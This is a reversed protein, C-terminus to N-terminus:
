QQKSPGFVSFLTGEILREEIRDLLRKSTRAFGQLDETLNTMKQTLYTFYRASESFDDALNKIDLPEHGIIYAGQKPVACVEKGRPLEIDILRDGLLGETKITYASCRQVDQKYKNLIGLSARVQKNELMPKPLFEINVVTGVDVGALRVPAGIRLGGVDSFIVDIYYKAEGFGTKAGLVFISIVIVIIGTLLFIGAIIEKDMNSKM